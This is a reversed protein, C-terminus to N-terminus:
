QGQGHPIFKLFSSLILILEASIEDWRRITVEPVFMTDSDSEVIIYSM